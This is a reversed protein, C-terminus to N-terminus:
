RANAYKLPAEAFAVHIYAAGSANVGAGTGRIKSGNSVLDLANASLLAEANATDLELTSNTVNYGPRQGDLVLWNNGAIDTRKLLEASPLGGAYVFPGDAAGNGTYKGMKICGSTEALAVIRYTGSPLSAALIVNTADVTIKPGAAAAATSNLLLYQNAALDPHWVYWDGTANIIKAIALLRNTGLGHAVNTAVGNVHAVEASFVGYAAGTRLAYGAYNDAATPATFAAKGAQSDSSLMNAIDDSFRWKWSQANSRDKFIEIYSTWPRAAALTAEIASGLATVAAFVNQPRQAPRPLNIACLSKFGSPPTSAFPRQGFNLDVVSGNYGSVAPVYTGTPLVISGQSVGSKFFEVTLSVLDLAVGIVDGSAFAAGYASAVNAVTKTGDARYGISTPLSPGFYSGSTNNEGDAAMIGIIPHTPGATAITAEWYLRGTSIPMSARSHSATAGTGSATFRLNGRSWAPTTVDYNDIDLPHLVCHNNTPTDITQNAAVIGGNVTWHNNNGSTDTGLSAANLFELRFGNPGYNGTYRKPIWQGTLPCIYGFASPELALGDVFHFESILGDRFYAGGTTGIHHAWAGNVQTLENQAPYNGTFSLQDNSVWVRARDAAVAQTTDVAVHIHYHAAEDRLKAMSTLGVVSGAGVYVELNGNSTRIFNRYLPAATDYAHFITDTTARSVGGKVWFSATWKQRNGAVAPTRSLYQALTSDLLLSNRANYCSPTGGVGRM